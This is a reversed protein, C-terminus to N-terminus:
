KQLPTLFHELRKTKCSAIWNEWCWKSFLSDKRWQKNKGGKDYILQVYTHPNVDSSEISNWSIHWLKHWYWEIKIVTAKSYLKFDPLMIGWTKNKMHLIIKALWLRKYNMGIKPIIQKVKTFFTIPRKIPIAIFRYYVKHLMYIKVNHIRRISSCLM